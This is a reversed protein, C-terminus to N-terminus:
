YRAGGARRLEDVALEAPVGVNDPTGGAVIRGTALSERGDIV